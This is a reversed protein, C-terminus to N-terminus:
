IKFSRKNLSIIEVQYSWQIFSFLSESFQWLVTAEKLASRDLEIHLPRAPTTVIVNLFSYFLFVCRTLLKLHYILIISHHVCHGDVKFNSFTFTPVKKFSKKKKAIDSGLIMTKSSGTNPLLKGKDPLFLFILSGLSALSGVNFFNFPWYTYCRGISGSKFRISSRLRHKVYGWWSWRKKM